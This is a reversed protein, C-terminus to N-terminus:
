PEAIRISALIAATKHIESAQRPQRMEKNPFTSSTYMFGPPMKGVEPASVGVPIFIGFSQAVVCAVM